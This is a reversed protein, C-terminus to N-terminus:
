SKRAKKKAVAKRKTARKRGSPTITHLQQGALSSVSFVACAIFFGVGIKFYLLSGELAQLLMNDGLTTHAILQSTKYVSVVGNGFFTITMLLCFFALMYVTRFASGQSMRASAITFLACGVFAGTAIQFYVINESLAAGLVNFDLPTGVLMASHQMLNVVGNALFNVSMLLSFFGLVYLGKFIDFGAVNLAAAKTRKTM